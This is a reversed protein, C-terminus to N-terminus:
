LTVRKGTSDIEGVKRKIWLHDWATWGGNKLHIIDERTYGYKYVIVERQYGPKSYWMPTGEALGQAEKRSKLRRYQHKM